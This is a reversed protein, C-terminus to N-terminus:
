QAVEAYAAELLAPEPDALIAPKGLGDLVVFRQTAGRAKKDIRMVELLQPLADARYSTPLGLRRLTEAHRDATADDLRGSHRGLAAAFVLGISVAHGHPIRYHELRSSRTRRPHPRLEAVGAARGRAPRAVRGRGQGRDLARDAGPQAARAPTAAAAPDLDILDLITPDAIFGAKVVEAMGSVWQADPLRRWCTSTSSCAPPRISPASWTRAPRPTSAPRAASRPTSWASCRPRCTCSGSAGCGPRPWSGSRRRHDRRRRDGRHRRLPHHRAGRPRGLPEGVASSRSRRSAPASRWRRSGTDPRAAARRALPQQPEAVHPDAITVCPRRAPWWRRCGTPWGTGSWSTTRRAGDVVIVTNVAGGRGRSAVEDPSQGDTSITM